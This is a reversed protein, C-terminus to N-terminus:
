RASSRHSIAFGKPWPFSSQEPTFPDSLAGRLKHLSSRAQGSALLLTIQIDPFAQSEGCTGGGGGGGPL